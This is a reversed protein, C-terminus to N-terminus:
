VKRFVQQLEIELINRRLFDCWLPLADCEHAILTVCRPRLLRHSHLSKHLLAPICSRLFRSIRSFVRWGAADDLVIGVHSFGPTVGDPILRFRNAKNVAAERVVGSDPAIGVPSSHGVIANEVWQAVSAGGDPERGVSSTILRRQAGLLDMKEEQLATALPSPPISAKRSYPTPPSFFHTVCADGGEWTTGEGHVGVWPRRPKCTALNLHVLMISPPHHIPSPANGNVGRGAPDAHNINRPFRGGQIRTWLADVTTAPPGHRGVMDWVHKIPSMDPSHAPWPLLPVRRENFFAQVNRTVHPRANDQQFIDHPSAQLVPLVKSELVERIYRNCNLNGEIRLLQYRM